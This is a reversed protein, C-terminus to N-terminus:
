NTKTFSSVLEIHKTFKFQDIPTISNVKYGNEILINMDEKFSIPNCSIYIIYPVSSKAINEIQTKAGVRPPDIIILSFKNLIESTIPNTFLNKTKLKIPLKHKSITKKCNEIATKDCDIGLIENAIPYLHLSFLGLGCFLDIINIKNNSFNNYFDKIYNKVTKVIHFEDEKSVQLFSNTYNISINNFTIIPEEKFYLINKKNTIKIINNKEAFTKIKPLDLQMININNFDLTVGNDVITILIEGNSRKIFTKILNQINPIIKNIRPDILNCNIVNIINNTKEKYFGLNNGYDIKLNIRRRLGNTEIIPKITKSEKINLLNKLYSYKHNIYDEPKFNYLNCGGCIGWLKCNINLM